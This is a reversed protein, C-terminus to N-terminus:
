GIMYIFVDYDELLTVVPRVGEECCFCVVDTMMVQQSSNIIRLVDVNFIFVDCIRYGFEVIYM